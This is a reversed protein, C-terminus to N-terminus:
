PRKRSQEGSWNTGPVGMLVEVGIGVEVRSLWTGPVGMLLEVGIGVEVRILWARKVGLELEM